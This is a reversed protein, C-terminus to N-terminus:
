ITFGQSAKCALSEQAYMVNGLIENFSPVFTIIIIKNKTGKGFYKNPAAM